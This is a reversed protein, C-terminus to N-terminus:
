GENIIKKRASKLVDSDEINRLGRDVYGLFSQSRCRFFDAPHGGVDRLRHEFRPRIVYPVVTRNKVKQRTRLLAAGINSLDRQSNLRPSADDDAGEPGLAGCFAAAEVDHTVVFIGQVILKTCMELQDFTRLFQVFCWETGRLLEEIAVAPDFCCSNQRHMDIVFM